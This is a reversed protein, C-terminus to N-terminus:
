NIVEKLEIKFVLASNAPISGAATSGYGLSPPIILTGKGGEGFLPLGRRWGAIVNSLNTTFNENGDFEKDDLLTGKYAVKVDSNIRPKKATNGPTEIIYYLGEETVQATLNKKKLYAEIDSDGDKSCSVFTLCIISLALFLIKNIM